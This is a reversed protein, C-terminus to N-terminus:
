KEWEFGWDDFKLVAVTKVRAQASLTYWGAAAANYM